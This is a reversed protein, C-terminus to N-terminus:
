RASARRLGACVGVIEHELRRAREGRANGADGEACEVEFLVQRDRGPEAAARGIRGRRQPKM